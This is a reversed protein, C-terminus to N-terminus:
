KIAFLVHPVIALVLRIVAFSVFVEGVTFQDHTLVETRAVM